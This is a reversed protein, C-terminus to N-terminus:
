EALVADWLAVPAKTLETAVSLPVRTDRQDQLRALHQLRRFERYSDAADYALDRPALKLDAAIRLLAITGLNRTLEWYRHAHALVLFQVIFEVDVIGGCGHKADFADSPLQRNARMKDRMTVVEGRLSERDRSTTLIDLRIDEFAEGVTADGVCYRARTLAQHEWVWAHKEQYDRFGSVSTVLLGKEGDPRLRLDTEYLVGASTLTNLWSVVRQALRVFLERQDPLNPEQPALAADAYLFIIDLDSAYGLEKGGLKGYGIIAVKPPPTDAGAVLRWCLRLTEALSRDALESLHDSLREVTMLGDLDQALLRFLQAQKFHRLLDMQRETDGAHHDLDAQLSRALKRWHPPALLSSTDLLEDLVIPHRRLYDAAWPSVSALRAIRELVPPYEALLALYSERRDISELLDLMRTLTADPPTFGAATEIVRPVLSDLRVRNNEPLGRYHNSERMAMIRRRLSQTDQYGMATLTAAAEEPEAGSWLQSAASDGNEEGAAFVDDFHRSVKDRHADLAALFSQYGAFNMAEAILAQDEVKDPLRQTQTDDLYQLRHELDRLFRYAASLEAVAAVPLLGREALLALVQLTPLIQLARDRGGRILQFVQALFEIERIGGPGIKINALADQRKAEDRIQRHLKRLEALAGYDLYKRFVFPRRLQEFEDVHGGCIVRAKIWAYREWTRAQTVLYADLMALNVALAGSDGYPRLRMDVRFVYGDSTIEHLSAIVRQGLRTFFEHNGIVNPGATEGEEPYLFILDVDSSVNLEFGGLKGMGVIILKQAADGDAGLKGPEQATSSPSPAEASQPKGTSRTLWEHQQAVATQLAIEALATMAATVEELDAFGNLDRLLTRLMVRKRLRRLAQKLDADSSISASALFAHMEAASWPKRYEIRLSAALDPEADLLRDAYRSLRRSRALAAM